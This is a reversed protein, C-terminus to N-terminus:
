DRESLPNYLMPVLEIKRIIRVPPDAELDWEQEVVRYSVGELPIETEWRDIHDPKENM